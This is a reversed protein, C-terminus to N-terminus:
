ASRVVAIRLDSAPKNIAAEQGPNDVSVIETDMWMMELSNWPPPEIDPSAARPATGSCGNLALAVICVPLGWYTHYTM